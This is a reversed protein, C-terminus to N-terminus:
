PHQTQLSRLMAGLLRMFAADPWTAGWRDGLGERFAQILVSEAGPSAEASTPAEREAAEPWQIQMRLHGAYEPVADSVAPPFGAATRDPPDVEFGPPLPDDLPSLPAVPHEFLALPDLPTGLLDALGPGPEVRQLPDDLHHARPSPDKLPHPSKEKVAAPEGSAPPPALGSWPSYEEVPTLTYPGIELTDGLQLPWDSGHSVAHGNVAVTAGPEPAIRWGELGQRLVAHRGAITGHRDPLVLTNDPHHGLSGGEAPFSASPGDDVPQGLHARISLKM